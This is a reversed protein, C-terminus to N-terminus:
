SRSAALTFGALSLLGLTGLLFPDAYSYAEGGGRQVAQAPAVGPAPLAAAPLAAAPLAVGPSPLAVGSSPLAVGSSPLALTPLPAGMGKLWSAPGYQQFLNAIIASSLLGAFTTATTAMQGYPAPKGIFSASVGSITIAIFLYLINIYFMANPNPSVIGSVVSIMNKGIGASGYYPIDLGESFGKGIKEKDFAQIIDFIWWAGLTLPNMLIKAFGTEVSGVAFHDIGFLGGLVTLLRYQELTVGTKIPPLSM